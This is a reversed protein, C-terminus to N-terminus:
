EDGGFYCKGYNRCLACYDCDNDRTLPCNGVDFCYEGIYDDYCDEWEDFDDGGEWAYPVFEYRPERYSANSYYIGADEIWGGGILEVDKDHMIALRSGDALREILLRKDADRLDEERKIILSMYDTIFEMTDSHTVGKAYTSTLSIIGNHAVGIRADTKLKRLDYMKKSLPFPHCCDKRLGAQTSIRFHLVVPADDGIKRRTASLAKEFDKFSMYGKRIHVRGADTYMYGAGDDNADFCRALTDRSPYAIGKPKYVIICM